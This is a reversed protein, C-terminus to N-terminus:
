IGIRQDVLGGLYKARYVEQNNKLIVEEGNYNDLSGQWQNKYIFKGEKLEKPGRYPYDKPMASLAKRLFPYIDDPNIGEIIWGYYVMIWYPKNKHSIIIRGGYPEGGFFNDNMKWPGQNFLITTSRDKEKIWQKEEGSAYGLKNAQLIFRRLTQLDM